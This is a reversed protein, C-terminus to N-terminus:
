TSVDWLHAPPVDLKAKFNKSSIFKSKDKYEFTVTINVLLKGYEYRCNSVGGINFLYYRDLAFIRTQAESSPYYGPYTPRYYAWTETSLETSFSYIDDSLREQNAKHSMVPGMSCFSVKVDYKEISDLIDPNIVVDKVIEKKAAEADGSQDLIYIITKERDSRPASPHDIFIQGYRNFKITPEKKLTWLGLEINNNLKKLDLDYLGNVAGELEQELSGNLTMKGKSTATIYIPEGKEDFYGSAKGMINSLNTLKGGMNGINAFVNSNNSPLLFDVIKPSVKFVSGVGKIIESAKSFFGSNQKYGSPIDVTGSYDGNLKINGKISVYGGFSFKTSENQGNPAYNLEFEFANWHRALPGLNNPNWERTLNTTSSKKNFTTSNLVEEYKLNSPINKNQSNTPEIMWVMSSNLVAQDNYYFIKLTGRKNNYFVMYNPEGSDKSMMQHFLM